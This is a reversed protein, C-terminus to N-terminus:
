SGLGVKIRRRSGRVLVNREKKRRGEADVGYLLSIGATGIGRITHEQGKQCFLISAKELRINEAIVLRSVTLRISPIYVRGTVGVDKEPRRGCGLFLVRHVPSEQRSRM